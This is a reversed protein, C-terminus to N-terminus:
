AVPREAVRWRARFTRREADSYFHRAFRSEYLEDLLAPPVELANQVQEYQRAYPKGAATNSRVLSFAPLGIFRRIAEAKVADPLECRLILVQLAGRAIVQSGEAHPFAHRYVDIGTTPGFEVDFWTVPRLHPYLRLFGQSLEEVSWRGEVYPEGLYHDVIQFFMSLNAAMPDRVITIIRAPRGSLIVRRYIQELYFRERFRWVLRRWAPFRGYVERARDIEAQAAAAEQRDIELGELRRHRVPLYEHSMFVFATRPDSVRFLSNRVSSSGVRGM